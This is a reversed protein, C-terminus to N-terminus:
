TSTTAPAPPSGARVYKKALDAGGGEALQNVQLFINGGCGPYERLIADYSEPNSTGPKNDPWVICQRTINKTATQRAADVRQQDGFAATKGVGKEFFGWEAPTPRRLVVIHDCAEFTPPGDDNGIPMQWIKGHEAELAELIEPTPKM